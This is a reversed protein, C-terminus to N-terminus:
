RENWKLKLIYKKSKTGGNNFGALLDIFLYKKM